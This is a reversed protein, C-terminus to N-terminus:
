LFLDFTSKPTNIANVTSPKAASPTASKCTRQKKVEAAPHSEVNVECSANSKSGKEGITTRRTPRAPANVSHTRRKKGRKRRRKNRRSSRKVKGVAWLDNKKGERDQEKGEKGTRGRRRRNGVKGGQRLLPGKARGMEGENEEDQREEDSECRVRKEPKEEVGSRSRSFSFSSPKPPRQQRAPVNCCHTRGREEEWYTSVGGSLLACSREGRITSKRGDRSGQKGGEAPWVERGEM